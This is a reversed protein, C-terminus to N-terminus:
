EREEKRMMAVKIYVINLIKLYREKIWAGSYSSFFFIRRTDSM